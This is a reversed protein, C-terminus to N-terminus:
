YEYGRMKDERNRKHKHLRKLYQAAVEEWQSEEGNDKLWQAYELAKDIQGINEHIQISYFSAEGAFGTEEHEQIIEDFWERAKRPTDEEMEVMGRALLVEARADDELNDENNILDDFIERAEGTEGALILAQGQLIRAEANREDIVKAAKAFSAASKEFEELERYAYGALLWRRDDDTEKLWQVTNQFSGLKFYGVAVGYILTSEEEADTEREELYKQAEEIGERPDDTELKELISDIEDSM